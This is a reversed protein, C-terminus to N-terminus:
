KSAGSRMHSGEVRAESCGECHRVKAAAAQDWGLSSGARKPPSNTASHRARVGVRSGTASGQRRRGIVRRRSTRTRAPATPHPRHLPPWRGPDPRGQGAQHPGARATIIVSSEGESRV